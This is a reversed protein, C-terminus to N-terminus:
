MFKSIRDSIPNVTMNVTYVHNSGANIDSVNFTIHPDMNKFLYAKGGLKKGNHYRIGTSKLSFFEETRDVGDVLISNIMMVCPNDGPDMRLKKVNAAVEVDFVVEDGIRKPNEVNYANSESIGEGFDKYIRVPLHSAHVREIVYDLSYTKNGLVYRIQYLALRDGQVKSQFAIEERKADEILSEWKSIDIWEKFAERRPNGQIYTFLARAILKDNSYGSDETWEYDIVNPVELKDIIVNPFILDIDTVGDNDAANIWEVYKDFLKIFSEKDGAFLAKDLLEELTIGEIYECKVKKYTGDVLELKDFVLPSKEYKKNLSEFNGYLKEIHANAKLTDACKYVCWEGNEKCIDTRICYEDARDNSFRSYKTAIEPGIIVLYANSFEKFKGERILMDFARTEDFLVLREDDFNRLNHYLEGTKPGWEDSFITNPFYLDPYPYYFSLDKAEVGAKILMETLGSKSYVSIKIDEIGGFYQGTTEEKCGAFYKLGLKNECAIVIRGDKALHEKALRVTAETLNEYGALIIYTFDKALKSEITEFSGVMVSLNNNNRNRIENVKTAEESEETTVVTGAKACLYQTLAGCKAGIELVKDKKDIPLWNILNARIPSLNYFFDYNVKNEIVERYAEPENDTVAQLLEDYIM